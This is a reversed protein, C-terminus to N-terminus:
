YQDKIINKFTIKYKQEFWHISDRFRKRFEKMAIDYDQNAWHTQDLKYILGPINKDETDDLFKNCAIVLSRIEQLDDGPFNIGNTISVLQNKIELISKICYDFYEMETPNVLVRKSELYVFLEKIRQKPTILNEWQISFSSFGFGTIKKKM